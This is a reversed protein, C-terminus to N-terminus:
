EKLGITYRTRWLSGVAIRWRALLVCSSQRTDLGNRQNFFYDFAEDAICIAVDLDVLKNLASAMDSALEQKQPINSSDKQSLLTLVTLRYSLFLTAANFVFKLNTSSMIFGLCLIPSGLCL